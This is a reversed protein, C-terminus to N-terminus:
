GYIVVESIDKITKILIDIRNNFEDNKLGVYLHRNKILSLYLQQLKPLTFKDEDNNNNHNPDMGKIINNKIQNLM